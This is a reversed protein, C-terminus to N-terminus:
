GLRVINTVTKYPSIRKVFEDDRVNSEPHHTRLTDLEVVNHISSIRSPAFGKAYIITVNELSTDNALRDEIEADADASEVVYVMGIGSKPLRDVPLPPPPPLSIQANDSTMTSEILQQYCKVREPHSSRYHAIIGACRSRYDTADFNTRVKEIIDVAAYFRNDEFYMGNNRFPECNHVIPIGLHMLELHLFNLRNMLTHSLVINMNSNNKRVLDIVYPMIIRGHTEIKNKKHLTLRSITAQNHSSVKDGCFFYVRNIRDPYKKEYAECILLPVLSNKHISMNPEFLIINIKETSAEDVTAINLDNTRIYHEIIDPDWVYPSLKTPRDCIMTLYDQQYDYMEMLWNLHSYEQQYHEIIHHVDFVFEEQHLIYVNGCVFNVIRLHPHSLMNDIYPSNHENRVLVLSSMILISYDSFDTDSNTFVVEFNDTGAEFVTYEKEVSLFRVTAGTLELTKKLFLSQQVCGNSFISDPKKILLGILHNKMLPSSHPPLPKQITVLFSNLFKFLHGCM